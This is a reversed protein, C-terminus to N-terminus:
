ILRKAPPTVAKLIPPNVYEIRRKTSDIAGIKNGRRRQDVAWELLVLANAMVDEGSCEALEMLKRFRQEADSTLTLQM